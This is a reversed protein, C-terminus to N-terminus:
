RIATIYFVSLVEMTSETNIKTQVLFLARRNRRARSRM